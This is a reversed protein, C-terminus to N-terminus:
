GSTGKQAVLDGLTAAVARQLNAPGERLATPLDFPETVIPVLTAFGHELLAEAGARCM